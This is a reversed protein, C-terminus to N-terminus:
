ARSPARTASRTTNLPWSPGHRGAGGIGHQEEGVKPAWPLGSAFSLEADRRAAACRWRAGASTTAPASVPVSRSVRVSMPPIDGGFRRWIRSSREAMGPRVRPRVTSNLGPVPLGPPAPPHQFGRGTRQRPQGGRLRAPPAPVAQARVVGSRTESVASGQQVSAGCGSGDDGDVTSRLRVGSGAARWRWRRISRACRPAGGPNRYWGIARQQFTDTVRASRLAAALTM